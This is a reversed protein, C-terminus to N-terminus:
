SGAALTGKFGLTVWRTGDCVMAVYNGATGTLTMTVGGTQATGDRVIIESANPDITIANTGVVYFIIAKGSSSAVAPITYTTTTNTWVETVAQTLTVAGGTTDPSAYTGVLGAIGVRDAYATTAVVTSNTAASATTATSTGIDAALVAGALTVVNGAQTLTADGNDWNIVGGEALFLDSWQLSTTGLTAGDNSTPSFSTTATATTLVGNTSLVYSGTGSTVPSAGYLNYASGDYQWTLLLKGSAPIITSTVTGIGLAFSSPITIVHSASDSNTILVAFFTNATAPTGSFTLTSDAAVTKTNWSKTVDVALAAMATAPKITAATFSEIGTHTNAGTFANNDGTGAIALASRFTATTTIAGSAGVNRQINGTNGSNRQSLLVDNAADAGFLLCPLFLLLGLLKKM